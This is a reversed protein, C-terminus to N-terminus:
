SVLSYLGHPKSGDGMLFVVFLVCFYFKFTIISISIGNLLWFFCFCFMPKLRLKGILFFMLFLLCYVDISPEENKWGDERM